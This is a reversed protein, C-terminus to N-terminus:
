DNGALREQLAKRMAILAQRLREEGGDGLEATVETFLRRTVPRVTAVLEAGEDTLSVIKARRDAPDTERRVFGQAELRDLHGSLTMPEIGMREAIISQNPAELVSIHVLTRAEAPTVGFGADGIVKEVAMRMLRAADALVFGLSNPDAKQSM